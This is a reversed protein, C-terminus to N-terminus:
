AYRVIREVCRDQAILRMAEAVNTTSAIVELQSPHSGLRIYKLGLQPFKKELFFMGCHRPDPIFLIAVQGPSPPTPATAPPPTYPAPAPASYSEYVQQQKQPPMRDLVASTSERVVEKPASEVAEKEESTLERVEGKKGRLLLVLALVGGGILIPDM